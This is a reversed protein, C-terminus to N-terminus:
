LLSFHSVVGMAVILLALLWCARNHWRGEALTFYHGVFPTGAALSMLMCTYWEAPWLGAILMTLYLEYRMLTFSMQTRMNDRYANARFHLSGWAVILAVGGMCVMELRTPLHDYVAFTEVYTLWHAPLLQGTTLLQYAVMYGAAAFLGLLSAAWTRRSLMRLYQGMCFWLPLVLLLVLPFAWAALGLLLFAYFTRGAAARQQYAGFLLLNAGVLCLPVVLSLSFEHVISLAAVLLLYSSSMMRSRLRLLHCRNNMELMVYATLVSMGLGGWYSGDAWHGPLWAVIAVVLSVVFTLDSQTIDARLGRRYAM